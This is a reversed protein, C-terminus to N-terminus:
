LSTSNERLDAKSKFHYRLTTSVSRRQGGTPTLTDYLIKAIENNRKGAEKMKRAQELRDRTFKRKRGRKRPTEGRVQVEAARVPKVRKWNNKILSWWSMTGM